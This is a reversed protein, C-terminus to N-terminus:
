KAQKGAKLSDRSQHAEKRDACGVPSVFGALLVGLIILTPNNELQDKLGM